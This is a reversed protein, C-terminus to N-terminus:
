LEELCLALARAVTEARIQERSGPIELSTIGTGDPTVVAIHVTGSRSATRRIPVRSAPRRSASMPAWRPTRVGEAMQWAVAPDVAGASALLDADVKLLSHKVDTAYAVVGGRMSASAGPVSVLAAALLGGTLSEATGITWGRQALRDLVEAAAPDTVRRGPEQARRAGRHRRLRHRERDHPRRRDDDHRRQGLLDLRRRADVAAAARAVARRGTRPDQAQGDLAAAVVHDSAVIFRHVTIGVERILVIITIWWPLEGLISLGIFAFGTLMKDAIPDLLKGLDTVIEYRRALYGDIGDTAIAVIFLM